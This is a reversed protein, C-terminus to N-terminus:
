IVSFFPTLGLLVLPLTIFVLIFYVKIDKFKKFKNEYAHEEGASDM